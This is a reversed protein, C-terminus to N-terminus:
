RVLLYEGEAVGALCDGELQDSGSREGELSLDNLEEDFVLLMQVGEGEHSGSLQLGSELEVDDLTYYLSGEGSLSGTIDSEIDLDLRYVLEMFRGDPGVLDEFECDGTWSGSLDSSCGLLLLLVLSRM